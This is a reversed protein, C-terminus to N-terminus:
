LFGIAFTAVLGLKRVTPLKLGVLSPIPLGLVMLDTFLNLVGYIGFAAKQSGCHGQPLYLNWNFEIPQCILLTVLTGSVALLAIGVWTIKSVITLRSLPFVKIYLTLLSMKSLSISLTWFIEM